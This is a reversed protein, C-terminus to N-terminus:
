SAPLPSSEPLTKPDYWADPAGFRIPVKWIPPAAHSGSPVKNVTSVVPAFGGSGNTFFYDNAFEEIKRCYNGNVENDFKVTDVYLSCNPKVLGSIRKTPDDDSTYFPPTDVLGITSTNAYGNSVYERRYVETAPINFPITYDKGVLVGDKNYCNLNFKSEHNQIQVPDYTNLGGLRM